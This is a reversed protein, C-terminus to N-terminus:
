EELDIVPGNLRLLLKDSEKIEDILTAIDLEEAEVPAEIKHNQGIIYGHRRELRWAAARWDNESAATIISLDRLASFGEAKKIRESFEKFHCKPNTSNRGKQLWAYLTSVDIGAAMAALKRTAGVEIAKCILDLKEKEFKSPRGM